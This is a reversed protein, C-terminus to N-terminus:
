LGTRGQKNWEAEHEEIIHIVTDWKTSDWPDTGYPSFGSGTDIFRYRGMNWLMTNLVGTAIFYANKTNYKKQTQGDNYLIYGVDVYLCFCQGNNNIYLDPAATNGPIKPEADEPLEVWEESNFYDSILKKQIDTPVYVWPHYGTDTMCIYANSIDGFPATNKNQVPETIESEWFDKTNFTNCGFVHLDNGYEEHSYFAETLVKMADESIRYTSYPEGTLKLGIHCDEYIELGAMEDDYRVNIIGLDNYPSPEEVYDPYQHVYVSWETNKLTEAVASKVEASPEFFQPFINPNSIRVDAGSIDKLPMQVPTGDAPVTTTTTTLTTTATTTTTTQQSTAETTIRTVTTPPEPKVLIEDDASSNRCGTLPCAIALVAIIGVLKGFRIM